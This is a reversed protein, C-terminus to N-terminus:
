VRDESEIAVKRQDDGDVWGRPQSPFIPNWVPLGTAEIAPFVGVRCYQSEITKFGPKIRGTVVLRRNGSVPGSLHRAM